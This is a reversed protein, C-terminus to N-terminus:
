DKKRHSFHMWIFFALVGLAGLEKVMALIATLEEM